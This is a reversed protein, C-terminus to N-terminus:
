DIKKVECNKINVRSIKPPANAGTAGGHRVAQEQIEEENKIIKFILSRSIVEEGMNATGFPPRAYRKANNRAVDRGFDHFDLRIQEAVQEQTLPEAM